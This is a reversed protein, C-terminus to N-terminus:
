VIISVLYCVMHSLSLAWVTYKREGTQLSPVIPLRFIHIEMTLPTSSSSVLHHVLCALGHHPLCMYIDFWNSSTNM